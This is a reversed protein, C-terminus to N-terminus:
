YLVATKLGSFSFDLIGAAARPYHFFDQFEVQSALKEIVPGGPYPLDILKAIKDFAEGAADDRTHALQEYSGFHHVLYLSTHGGSATLCLHPFPVKNEICASFIHGELH